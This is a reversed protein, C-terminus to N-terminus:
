ARTRSSPRTSSNLTYSAAETGDLKKVSITVGSIAFETISQQIMYLAQALTMESGSTAYSETLTHTAIGTPIYSFQSDLNASALGVANRVGSATLGGSASNELMNETFQYNEGDYQLGTDIKGLIDNSNEVMVSLDNIESSTALDEQIWSVLETSVAAVNVADNEIEYVYSRISGNILGSPLQGSISALQADLNASGLGLIQRMRDEFSGEVDVMQATVASVSGIDDHIDYLDGSSAVISPFTTSLFGSPQTYGVMPMGSTQISNWYTTNAPAPEFQIESPPCHGGSALVSVILSRAGTNFRTNALQIEYIGPHYTSDVEKFRCKGSTPAAYTGLTTISEITSGSSAYSTTTPENDAIASIYLGSSDHAVGTKGGGITSSTDSVRVRLIVSSTGDKYNFKAM